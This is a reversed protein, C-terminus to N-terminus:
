SQQRISQQSKQNTRSQGAVRGRAPDSDVISMFCCFSLVGPRPFIFGGFSCCTIRQDFRLLSHSLGEEKHKVLEEDKYKLQSQMEVVQQTIRAAM